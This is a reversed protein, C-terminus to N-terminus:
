ALTVKGQMVDMFTPQNLNSRGSNPIVPRASSRTTACFESPHQMRRMKVDRHKLWYPKTKETKLKIQQLKPAM